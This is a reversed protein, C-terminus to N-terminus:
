GGFLIRRCLFGATVLIFIKIAPFTRPDIDFSHCGLNVLSGINFCMNYNPASGGGLSPKFQDLFSFFESAKIDILKEDMVGQLGNEYESEWFGVLGESPELKIEISSDCGGETDCIGDGGSGGGGIGSNEVADTVMKLGDITRNSSNQITTILKNAIKSDSEIGKNHLDIDQLKQEMGESEIKEKLNRIECSPDGPPCIEEIPNLTPIDSDQSKESEVDVPPDSPENSNGVPCVMFGTGTGVDASQCNDDNGDSMWPDDTGQGCSDGTSVGSVVFSGSYGDNNQGSSVSYACTGDCYTGANNNYVSGKAWVGKVSGAADCEVAICELAGTGSSPRVIAFKFYGQPCQELNPNDKACAEPEGDGNSDIPHIYDLYDPNPCKRIVSDVTYYGLSMDVKETGFIDCDGYKCRTFTYEFWEGAKTGGGNLSYSSNTPFLGSHESIFAPSCDAIETTTFSTYGSVCAYLTVLEPSKTDQSANSVQSFFPTLM